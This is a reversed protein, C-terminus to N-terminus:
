ERVNREETATIGRSLLGATVAFTQFECFFSLHTGPEAPTTATTVCSFHKGERYSNISGYDSEHRGRSAQSCIFHQLLMLSLDVLIANGESM